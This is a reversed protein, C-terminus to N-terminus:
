SIGFACCNLPFTHLALGVVTKTTRTVKCLGAVGHLLLRETEILLPLLDLEYMIIYLHRYHKFRDFSAPLTTSHKYM